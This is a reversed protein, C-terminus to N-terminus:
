FYFLIWHPVQVVAFLPEYPKFILDSPLLPGIVKYGIAAAEVEKEEPSYERKIGSVTVDNEEEGNEDSVYNEEEENESDERSSSSFDRIHLM